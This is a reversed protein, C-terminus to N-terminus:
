GPLWAYSNLLAEEAPHLKLFDDLVQVFLGVTNKSRPLRQRSTFIVGYHTTGQSEAERLERRFDGWNETVIARREAQALRFLEPDKSGTLDSREAVAVVEHDRERLQEAIAKSYHEDLM